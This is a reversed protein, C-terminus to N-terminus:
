IIEGDVGLDEFHDRERLNVWWVSYGGRTNWMRAVHGLWRIKRSKFM